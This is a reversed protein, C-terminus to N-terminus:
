SQLLRMAELIPTRAKLQTALELVRQSDPRQRRLYRRLGGVALDPGILHRLRFCDVVTRELDSIWFVLGRGAEVETRGLSYTTKSFVHVHTPPYDIRPRHAGSPVALDVLSPSEDSLDWYSLASGLCVMSGPARACVSVLDIQDVDANERLQFLGRSLEIVLGEDRARYLDRWSLGARVAEGSRFIPGLLRLRNLVTATASMYPTRGAIPTRKYVKM